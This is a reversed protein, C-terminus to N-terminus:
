GGRGALVRAILAAEDLAGSEGLQVATDEYPIREVFARHVAALVADASVGLHKLLADIM